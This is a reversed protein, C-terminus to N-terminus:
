TGEAKVARAIRAVRRGQDAACAAAEGADIIAPVTIFGLNLLATSFSTLTSGGAAVAGGVKGDLKGESRLRALRGFVHTWEPFTGGHKSSAAFVVADTSIFDKDSPPIYEKRMRRLEPGVELSEDDVVDELRRLRILARAEVAGVAAALALAETEGDRSYFVVLVSLPPAPASM